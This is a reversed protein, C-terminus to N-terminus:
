PDSRIKYRDYERYKDDIVKKSEQDIRKFLNSSSADLDPQHKYLLPNAHVEFM